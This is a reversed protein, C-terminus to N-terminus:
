KPSYLLTLVVGAGYSATNAIASALLSKSVNRPRSVVIYVVAEVVVAISEGLVIQYQLPCFAPVGFFLFLHTATTALLCSVGMRVRQEPFFLIVVPVEICITATLAALYEPSM